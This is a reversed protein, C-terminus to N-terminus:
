PSPIYVSITKGLPDIPIIGSNITSEGVGAVLEITKIEETVIKIQIDFDTIAKNYACFYRIELGIVEGTDGWMNPDLSFKIFYIAYQSEKFSFSGNKLQSSESFKNGNSDDAISFEVFVGDMAAEEGDILLKVTGSTEGKEIISTYVLFVIVLSM